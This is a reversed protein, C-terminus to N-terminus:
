GGSPLAAERNIIRPTIFVLLETRQDSVSKKKFLWGVVPLESLGPVANVGESNQRTYIGGIVTTEGDKVMVNTSAEKQSISPQGNAGTLQPNPQNNTVKVAMLISGDATVHPTVDLKLQAQIFTTNVGAASVQSFPISLGQSITAQSNDMTSIHPAGITKIVGENEMASLRLNLQAAGGASGFVFGLGGGSNTGIPAPMNVAFSPNDSTGDTPAQGGSAAGGVTVIHPFALGTPNGTAPSFGITGGWQIGVERTFNVSAEVIRSEIQVQPTETDLRRVLHEARQLAEPTDKVILSNTRADVSVSGRETLTDALQSKLSDATAFNVPILRVQLAVLTRMAEKAKIRQEREKALVDAPAIRIINGLIEKDLGKARLVLDLAQDWPVNKLRLTVTGKVDDAVVINRKSVEGIFRLVNHIEIDKFELNIRRGRYRAREGSSAVHVAGETALGAAAATSATSVSVKPSEPAQAVARQPIPGSVQFEWSLGGPVLVVKNKVPRALAAVIKVRGGPEAFATVARVQGGEASADYSRELDPDIRAGELTLVSTRADLRTVKYRPAEAGEFALVVRGVSGSRAYSIARVQTEDAVPQSAAPAAPSPAAAVAAPAGAAAAVRVAVGTRTRSVKYEGIRDGAGDIVIRVKNPHRGVRVGTVPAGSSVGAMDVGRPAKSLGHLDIALRGPEVLELTEILKAPRDTRVMVVVAEGVQRVKVAQVRTGFPGRKAKDVQRAVVGPPLAEARAARRAAPPSKAAPAPAKPRAAEPAPSAKAVATAAPAAESPAPAPREAVEERAAPAKAEGEDPEASAAAVLAPAAALETRLSIVVTDGEANVTYPVDRELAIMVRGVQAGADNFQSTLITEVGRKGVKTLRDVGSIDTSSLDVVLRPPQGVKFVSFTPKRSGQVEVVLGEKTERVEVGRVVNVDGEGAWAMAPASSVLLAALALASFRGDHKRTSANRM